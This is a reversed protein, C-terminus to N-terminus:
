AADSMRTPKANRLRSHRSGYAFYLVLGLVLWIAFRKWTIAPLQLM